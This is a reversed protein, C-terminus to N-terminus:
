PSLLNIYPQQPSQLAQSESSPLRAGPTWGSTPSVQSWSLESVKPQVSPFPLEPLRQQIPTGWHEPLPQTSEATLPTASTKSHDVLVSIVSVMVVTSAESCVCLEATTAMWHCAHHHFSYIREYGMKVPFVGLSLTYSSLPRSHDAWLSRQYFMISVSFSATPMELLTTMHCNFLSPVHLWQM